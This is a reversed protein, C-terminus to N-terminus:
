KSWIKNNKMTTSTIVFTLDTILETETLDLEEQYIEKLEQSEDDRSRVLHM